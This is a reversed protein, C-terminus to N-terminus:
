FFDMEEQELVGSELLIAALDKVSHVINGSNKAGTCIVKGSSFILFCVKPEDVKYILGPFVERNDNLINQQLHAPIMVAVLTMQM